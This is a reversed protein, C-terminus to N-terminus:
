GGNAEVVLIRGPLEIRTNPVLNNQIKFQYSLNCRAKNETPAYTRGKWKFAVCKGFATVPGEYIYCHNM